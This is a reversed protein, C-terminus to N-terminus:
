ITTAMQCRGEWAYMGMLVYGIICLGLIYRLIVGIIGTTEMKKEMIGIYGGIYKRYLGLIVGIIGIAEMRKAMIGM